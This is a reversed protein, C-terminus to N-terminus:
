ANVNTARRIGRGGRRVAPRGGQQGTSSDNADGPRTTSSGNTDAATRPAPTADYVACVEAMRKRARKEGRSLRTKLKHESGEAQKKTADRLADPLVVVGKGDCSLVLVDDQQAAARQRQAYFSDFDV